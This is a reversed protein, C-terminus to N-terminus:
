DLLTAREGELTTGAAFRPDQAADLWMDSGPGAANWREPVTQGDKSETVANVRAHGCWFPLANRNERVEVTTIPRSRYEGLRM